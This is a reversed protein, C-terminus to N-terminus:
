PKTPAISGPYRNAWMQGRFANLAQDLPVKHENPGSYRRRKGGNVMEHRHIEPGRGNPETHFHFGIESGYPQDILDYEYAVIDGLGMTSRAPLERTEDAIILITGDRMAPRAADRFATLLQTAGFRAEVRTRTSTNVLIDPDTIRVFTGDAEVASVLYDAVLQGFTRDSGM